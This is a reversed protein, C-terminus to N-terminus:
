QGSKVVAKTRKSSYTNTLKMKVISGNKLERENNDVTFLNSEGVKLVCLM